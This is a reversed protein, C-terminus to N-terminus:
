RVFQKPTVPANKLTTRIMFAVMRVREETSDGATDKWSRMSKMIAMLLPASEPVPQLLILLKLIEQEKSQM